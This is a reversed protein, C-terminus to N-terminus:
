ALRAIQQRQQRQEARHESERHAPGPPAPGRDRAGHQHDQEQGVVEEALQLHDAAVVASRGSSRGHPPWLQAIPGGSRGHDSVGAGITAESAPANAPREALAPRARREDPKPLYHGGNEIGPVM